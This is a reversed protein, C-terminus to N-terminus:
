VKVSKKLARPLEPYHTGTQFPWTVLDKKMEGTGLTDRADERFDLIFFGSL